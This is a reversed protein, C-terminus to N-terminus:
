FNLSIDRHGSQCSAISLGQDRTMRPQQRMGITERLADQYALVGETFTGKAQGRWQLQETYLKEAKDFEKLAKELDPKKKKLARRVKSMGSKVKSAGEMNLKRSFANVVEHMEAPPTPKSRSVCDVCNLNWHRTPRPERFRTPSFRLTM